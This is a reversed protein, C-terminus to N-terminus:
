KFKQYAVGGLVAMLILYAIIVMWVILGSFIRLFVM